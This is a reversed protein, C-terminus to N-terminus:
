GGKQNRSRDVALLPIKVKEKELGLDKRSGCCVYNRVSLGRATDGKEFPTASPRPIEWFFNRGTLAGEM